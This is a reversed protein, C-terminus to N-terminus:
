LVVPQDPLENPNDTGAPFHQRLQQSIAEIAQLLGQEYDGRKFCTAAGAVISQWVSEGVVAHIGRDAVIELQHEAMLVYLLVGSNGATDWVGLQSFLVVARARSLSPSGTLASVTIQRLVDWGLGGEIVLRLEGSHGTEAKAIAQEIRQLGQAPFAKRVERDASWVHSFLRGFRNRRSVNM